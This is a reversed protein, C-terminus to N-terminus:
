RTSSSRSVTISTRVVWTVAQRPMKRRTSIAQPHIRHNTNIPNVFDEDEDEEECVACLKRPRSLSTRTGLRTKRLKPPRFLRTGKELVEAGTSLIISGFIRGLLVLITNLSLSPHTSLHMPWMPCCCTCRSRTRKRPGQPLRPHMRGRHRIDKTWDSDAIYSRIKECGERKEWGM